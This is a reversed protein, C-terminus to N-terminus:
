RFLQGVKASRSDRCVAARSERELELEEHFLGAPPKVDICPRLERAALWSKHSRAVADRSCCSSTFPHYSVTLNKWAYYSTDLSPRAVRSWPVEVRVQRHSIHLFSSFFSLFFSLFSYFSLRSFHYPLPSTCRTSPRLVSSPLLQRNM